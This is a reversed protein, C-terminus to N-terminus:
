GEILESEPTTQCNFQISLNRKALIDILHHTVQERKEPPPKATGIDLYKYVQLSDASIIESDLYDALEFATESKGAATPGAIVILPRM